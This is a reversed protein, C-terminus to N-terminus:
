GTMHLQYVNLIENYILEIGISFLHHNFVSEKVIKMIEKRAEESNGPKPTKFVIDRQQNDLCRDILERFYSKRYMYLSKIKYYDLSKQCVPICDNNKQHDLSIEEDTLNMYDYRKVGYKKICLDFTFDAHYYEQGIKVINWAHADSTDMNDQSIASGYVVLSEMGSLDFLFKVAKSIGECVGKHFLLPGVIEYSSQVKSLDYIVNEQFYDHIAIEKEFEPLYKIHDTFASVKLLVDQMIDIIEKEAFRYVPILIVISAPVTYQYSFKDIYFIWPYDMKLFRLIEQLRFEEIGPIRIHSSHRIIGDLIRKYIEQEIRTLSLYYYPTSLKVLAKLSEYMRM